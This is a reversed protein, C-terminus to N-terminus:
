SARKPKSPVTLLILAGALASLLSGLLVALKLVAEVEPDAFALLGIFLSMTFGLPSNAMALGLAASGMLVLGGSAESEIFREFTTRTRQSSSLAAGDIESVRSWSTASLASV